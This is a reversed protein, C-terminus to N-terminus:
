DGPGAMEVELARPHDLALQVPVRWRDGASAADLEAPEGDVRVAVVGAGPLEPELVLRLPTAGR